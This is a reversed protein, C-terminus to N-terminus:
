KHDLLQELQPRLQELSEYTIAELGEDRAATTYREIDDVLVVESPEVGLRECTLKFIRPDPKVMGVEFSMIMDDFLKQDTPTLLTDRIWNTAINSLLGIKYGRKKLEGIYGLLPANKVIQDQELDDAEVFKRGSLERIREACEQKTIIGSTYARHVSRIEDVDTGSPLDSIFLLWRETTLVGFCDFVIAKIM